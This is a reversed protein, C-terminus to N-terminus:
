SVNHMYHLHIIEVKAYKNCANCKSKLLGKGTWAVTQHHGASLQAHGDLATATPGQCVHLPGVGACGTHGSARPSINVFFLNM